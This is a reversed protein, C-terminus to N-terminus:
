STVYASRYVKHMNQLQMPLISPDSQFNCYRDVWLYRIGPEQTVILADEIVLGEVPPLARPNERPPDPSTGLCYSLAAYEAQDPAHVIARNTCDILWFHPIKDLEAMRCDNRHNQYCFRQWNRMKDFDAAASLHGWIPGTDENADSSILTPVIWGRCKAKSPDSETSISLLVKSEALTPGFISNVEHIYLSLKNAPPWNWSKACLLVFNCLKCTNIEDGEPLNAFTHIKQPKCPKRPLVKELRLNISACELCLQELDSPAATLDAIVVLWGIGPANRM